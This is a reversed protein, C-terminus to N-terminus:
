SPLNTWRNVEEHVKKSIGVFIDGCVTFFTLTTSAYPIWTQAMFSNSSKENSTIAWAVALAFLMVVTAALALHTSRHLNVGRTFLEGIGALLVGIDFIFITGPKIEDINALQGILIVLLPM